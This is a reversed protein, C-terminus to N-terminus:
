AKEDKKIGRKWTRPAKLISDHEKTTEPIIAEERALEKRESMENGWAKCESVPILIYPLGRNALKKGPLLSREETLYFMFGTLRGEKLRKHIAPRSVKVYRSAGGPSITGDGECIDFVAQFWRQLDGADGVKKYLRSGPDPAGVHILLEAPIKIFPFQKKM